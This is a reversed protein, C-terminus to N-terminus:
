DAPVAGGTRAADGLRLTAVTLAVAGLSLAAVGLFAAEPTSREILWGFAPPAVAGGLSIGVTILAFSKGVDGRGALGDTLKSRAPRSVSVGSYLLVTVAAAALAPLLATGVAAALVTLAGFGGLLVPAAGYRDSLVGGVLIAVAGTVFMATAVVNATGDGMGYSGTLLLVAYSRVGWSAASAAFALAALSLMAPATVVDAIAAGARRVLSRGAAAEPTGNGSPPHRVGDSVGRVLWLAGVAYLTGIVAVVWVAERWGGGLGVAAATIAPPAGFGLAGTFGHISFVRGRRDPGTTASLLPYHAPHHAGTGVGLVVQAALLWEFSPALATLVAGVAGVVLSVALVATRSYADAVYGFPLQVATNVAGQVGVALGLMGVGVPFDAALFGFLPPLVVLYMHNVFHSGGVLGVVLGAEYGDEAQRGGSVDDGAWRGDSGDDGRRGGSKENGARRGGSKKDGSTM